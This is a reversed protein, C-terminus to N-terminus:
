SLARVVAASYVILIACHMLSFLVEYLTTYNDEEENEIKDNFEDKTM